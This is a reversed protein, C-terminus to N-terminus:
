NTFVKAIVMLLFRSMAVLFLFIKLIVLIVLKLLLILKGQEGSYDIRVGISGDTGYILNKNTVTVTANAKTVNFWGKVDSSGDDPSSNYNTTNSEYYAYM